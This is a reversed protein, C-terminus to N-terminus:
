TDSPEVQQQKEFEEESLPEISKLKRNAIRITFLGRCKGCRFPGEYASQALLFSAKM